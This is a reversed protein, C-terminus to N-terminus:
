ENVAAPRDQLVEKYRQRTVELDKKPTAKGSSSKKKFCHLVYVAEEFKAVYMVRYADTNERIRIEYVGSGVHSMATFNQPDRGQQVRDLQYGADQMAGDPFDRLDDFSSGMWHIPKDAMKEEELTHNNNTIICTQMINCYMILITGLEDLRNLCTSYPM